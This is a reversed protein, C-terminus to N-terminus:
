LISCQGKIEILALNDVGLIMQNNRISKITYFEHLCIFLLLIYHELFDSM